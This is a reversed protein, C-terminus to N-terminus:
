VGGALDAGPRTVEVGAFGEAGDALEDGSEGAESGEEENVRTEREGVAAKEGTASRRRGTGLWPRAVSNGGSCHKERGADRGRWATKRARTKATAQQTRGQARRGGAAVFRADDAGGHCPYGAVGREGGGVPVPEAYDFAVETAGGDDFEEGGAQFDGIAQGVM